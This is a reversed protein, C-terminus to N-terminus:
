ATQVYVTPDPAPRRRALYALHAVGGPTLKDTNPEFMHNWITQDLVHGNIVQPALATNVERRAMYEYRAPYCPDVLDRYTYCGGTGALAAACGLGAAGKRILGKM